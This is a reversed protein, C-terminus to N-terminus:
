HPRGQRDARFESPSKRNRRHLGPKRNRKRNQRRAQLRRRPFIQHRQRHLSQALRHHRHGCRRAPQADCLGRGAHAAARHLARGRGDFPHRVFDREGAHLRFAAHRQRHRDQTQRARAVPTRSKQLRARRRPRTEVRNRRHRTRCEGHRARRRHRLNKQSQENKKSRAPASVVIDVEAPEVSVLTVGPPTSVEVRRKLNRTVAIDTLDVVPHIQNAQLVAMVEPPGSVKVTVTGPLSAFIACTRRPPFWWCRCIAM